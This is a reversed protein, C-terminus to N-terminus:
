TVLTVEDSTLDVDLLLNVSNWAINAHTLMAGKPRGTTGSTYLIMCTEDPDVPEDLPDTTAGALLTEYDEGVPVTVSVPLEDVTSAHAPSHLLVDAGSDAVIYALEAATLRWNLPVFVAGLQGTAFLAELFAPHNPGLYAIRDGHRVGRAALAHALRVARDHLQRYTWERDEYRIAVREPSMRARRAAWSGLGQNRM